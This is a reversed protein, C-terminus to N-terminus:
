TLAATVGCLVAWTTAVAVVKLRRNRDTLTAGFAVADTLDAATRAWLMSRLAPGPRAFLLGLGLATDQGGISRILVDTASSVPLGAPKALLEPKVLLAASYAATVAGLLRAATVTM